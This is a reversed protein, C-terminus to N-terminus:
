RLDPYSGNYSHFCKKETNKLALFAALIQEVIDLGLALGPVLPRDRVARSGALWRRCSALLIPALDVPL